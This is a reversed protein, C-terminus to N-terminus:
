KKAKYLLIDISESIIEFHKDFSYLPSGYAQAVVAIYCDALGVTKGDRRLDFSLTGAKRWADPPESLITAVEALDNIVEVESQSRAGQILEAMILKLSALQQNEALENIQNFVPNKKRFYEIWVSTDILILNDM